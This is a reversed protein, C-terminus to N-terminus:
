TGETVAMNSHTAEVSVMMDGRLLAVEEDLAREVLQGLVGLGTGGHQDAQRLGPPVGLGARAAAQGVEVAPDQGEDHHAHGHEHHADEFLRM